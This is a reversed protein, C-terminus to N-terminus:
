LLIGEVLKITDFQYVPVNRRKALDVMMATGPGGPFAVVIDPEGVDLMQKNRIYGASSGYVKWEAPFVLLRVEKNQAYMGAIRDAGRADGEIITTIPSVHNHVWDLCEWIFDSDNFDRGGCVLVRM